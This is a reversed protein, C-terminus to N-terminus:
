ILSRTSCQLAVCVFGGVTSFPLLFFFFFGERSREAGARERRGGWEFGFSFGGGGDVAVARRGGGEMTTNDLRYNERVLAAIVLVVHLLM